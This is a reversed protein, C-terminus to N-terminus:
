DPIVGFSKGANMYVWFGDFSNLEVTNIIKFGVWEANIVLTRSIDDTFQNYSGQGILSTLGVGEQEGIQVYRLQSLLTYADTEGACSIINWGASLTKTVVGPASTSYNIGVGGGGSTKIYYADVSTLQTAMTVQPYGTGPTYKYALITDTGALVTTGIWATGTTVEKDTSVLTWGDKLALTKDYTTPTTGSVVAELLWPEYDVNASVSDGYATYGTATLKVADAPGSANGWWNYQADVTVDSELNLLGYTTNGALNNYNVTISGVTGVGDKVEIGWVNDTITNNQITVDGTLAEGAFWIGDNSNTITNNEITIGGVGALEIAACGMSSGGDVRLGMGEFTNNSITITQDATTGTAMYIGSDVYRTPESGLPFSNGDFTSGTVDNNVYIGTV